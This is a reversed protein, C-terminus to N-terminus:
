KIISSVIGGGVLEDNVYFAAVQGLATPKQPEDFTLSTNDSDITISCPSPRM